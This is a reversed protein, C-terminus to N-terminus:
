FRKDRDSEPRKRRSAAGLLVWCLILGVISLIAPMNEEEKTRAPVM